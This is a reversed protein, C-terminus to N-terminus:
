KDIVIHYIRLLIEEARSKPSQLVGGIKEVLAISAKNDPFILCLLRKPGEERKLKDIIASLFEYGYGRHQYEPLLEMRVEPMESNIDSLSVYGIMVDGIFAGYSTEKADNVRSNLYDNLAKIGDRDYFLAKVDSADLTSIYRKLLNNGAQNAIRSVDEDTIEKIVLRETNIEM